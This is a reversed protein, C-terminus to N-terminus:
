PKRKTCPALFLSRFSLCLTTLSMGYVTCMGTKHDHGSVYMSTIQEGEVVLEPRGLPIRGMNRLGEVFCAAQMDAQVAGYERAFFGGTLPEHLM